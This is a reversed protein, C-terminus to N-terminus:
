RPAESEIAGALAQLRARYDGPSLAEAAFPMRAHGIGCFEACQGQFIGPMPATLRIVTVHGPIADIKGGLRPIWFSHIVDESTVHIEVTRGAPMYLVSTTSVDNADPYRFTWNWQRAFAEVLVTDKQSRLLLSDEIMLGYILLSSLTIAPFIIGGGMLWTRRSLAVHRRWPTFAILVLGMTVALIVTAGILMVWWLTATSAAQPGAPDLVSLPGQCAALPACFALSMGAFRIHM